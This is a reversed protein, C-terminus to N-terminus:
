LGFLLKPSIECVTFVPNLRGIVTCNGLAPSFSGKVGFSKVLEVAQIFVLTEIEKLFVVYGARIGNAEHAAMAMAQHFDILSNPFAKANISKTDILAVRGQFSLVWDFPTKVRTLKTASLQRCGDPIRTVVINMRQCIVKFINEFNEGNKKAKLGRARNTQKMFSILWM